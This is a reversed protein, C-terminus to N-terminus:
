AFVEQVKKIGKALADVEEKTNYFAFSARATAPIGFRDMIPQACHHGTRIAIGEQDLITGVDHPHIGEIVFSLVGAKEKANGIIRVGPIASVKETAYALLEHEYEAIKDMGIRNLYEVAAGFAIAGAINPTGAEFKFPLKNYTTKEFTVSSIMEGGGQYPPM